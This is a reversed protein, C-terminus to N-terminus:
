GQYGFGLITFQKNPTEPSRRIEVTHEVNEKGRYVIQANCHDWGNVHPDATFVFEGDVYVDAKGFDNNGSDKSVMLLYPSKVKIVFPEDGSEPTCMWNNPFEPTVEKDLNMEVRQLVTDTGTFGGCSIEAGADNDKRDILRVNKFEPRYVTELKEYEPEASVGSEDAKGFLYDLGDAMIRHGANTPHFMDYFFRNKSIVRGKDPTLYFQDVVANKVSVMPLDYREGVPMLREQLNWDNEFVSFLLIVAPANESFLINRVLSEYCDGKTEDGEDNVAFEVVVADPAAGSGLVDREYRIMGLESPTGGVGAKTYHVNDGKAFRKCFADYALKAYCTQQIPVAGAGQTISGGIFAVTVDEGAKAKDIVRKLRVNNGLSVLSKAIMDKYAKGEFDVPAELEVEPATYGDNLYFKVSVVAVEGAADFTFRFQGPIDDDESWHEIESLTIVNESGNAPINLKLTTGGGYLDTKGYMQFAFEANQAPNDCTVSVGISHVLKKFGETTKLLEMMEEDTIKGVIKAASLLRGDNLYVPHTGGGVANAGAEVAKEYLVYFGPRKKTPDKPAKPGGNSM